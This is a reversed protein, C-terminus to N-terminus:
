VKFDFWEGPDKWKGDIQVTFHLHPGTSHGTNGSLAIVDGEKVIQGEKVLRHELHAFGYRIGDPTVMSLCMGGRPHTWLKQIRGDAPAVVATGAPCAIDVGNHFSMVGTIPHKRKGFPSTIKGIIPNMKKTIQENKCPAPRRTHVKLVRYIANNKGPEM